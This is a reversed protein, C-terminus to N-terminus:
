FSMKTRYNFKLIGKADGEKGHRHRNYLRAAKIYTSRTNNATVRVTQNSYGYPLHMGVVMIVATLCLTWAHFGIWFKTCNQTLRTNVGSLNCRIGIHALTIELVGLPVANKLDLEEELM